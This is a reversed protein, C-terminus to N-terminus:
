SVLTATQLLLDKEDNEKAIENKMDDLAKGVNELKERIM